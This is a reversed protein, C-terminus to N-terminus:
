VTVRITPPTFIPIAIEFSTVITPSVVTLVTVITLMSTLLEFAWKIITPTSTLITVTFSVLASLGRARPRSLWFLGNVTGLIM